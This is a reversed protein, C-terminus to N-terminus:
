WIGSWKKEERQMSVWFIKIYQRIETRERGNFIIKSWWTSAEQVVSFISKHLDGIVEMNVKMNNFGIAAQGM